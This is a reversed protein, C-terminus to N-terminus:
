KKLADNGKCIIFKVVILVLSSMVLLFVAIILKTETDFYKYIFMAWTFFFAVTVVVPMVTTTRAPWHPKLGFTIIPHNKTNKKLTDAIKNLETTWLFHMRGAAVAGVFGILALVAGLTSVMAALYTLKEIMDPKGSAEILLKVIWALAGFLVGQPVFMWNLRENMWSKELHAAQQFRKWRKLQTHCKCRCKVDNGSM